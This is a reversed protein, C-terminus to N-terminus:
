KSTDEIKLAHRIKVGIYWFSHAYNARVNNLTWEDVRLKDPDTPPADDEIKRLLGELEAVRKQQAALHEVLKDLRDEGVKIEIPYTDYIYDLAAGMRGLLDEYHMNKARLRELEDLPKIPENM